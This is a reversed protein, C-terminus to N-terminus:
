GPRRECARSLRQHSRAADCRLRRARARLRLPRRRADLDLLRPAEVGYLFPRLRRARAHAGGARQPLLRAGAASLGTGKFTHDYNQPVYLGTPLTVALPSDDLISAATLMRREIALAYLFPKLTSGPQRPALVGDVEHARSLEGSSGVWALVDGTANDLVVLAGDEVNRGELERLHRRLTSVAFRQVRADLTSLAQEGPRKLLKHALHPAAGDLELEAGRARLGSAAIGQAILCAAADRALLACARRAVRTAHANPARVLAALLASEIRDLGGARKGFLSRAAADVGEVEGRFPALNLWAEFIQAKSWERELALAQRMQRWKDVLDRRGSKELEPNLYAALQMTITSGGRREGAATQRFAGPLALWDVGRHDFFRKDESVLVTSALAPSVESLTVWDGRRREHDIRVRSLPEGRRDLLWADSARWASQVSAFDTVPYPAIAFSAALAAAALVCIAVACLGRKM